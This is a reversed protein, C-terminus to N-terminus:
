PIIVRRLAQVRTCGDIMAAEELAEPIEDLFGRMTWIVFPLNFTTDAIVLAWITNTLGLKRFILFFPVILVAPPAMRTALIWLGLGQGGTNFRSISYAALTGVVVTIGTTLAAVLVSNRAYLFFAQREFIYRYHEFTPRFFLTLKPQIIDQTGKFSNLLMWFFPVLWISLIAFVLLYIVLQILHRKSM